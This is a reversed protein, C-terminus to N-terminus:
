TVITFEGPETGLAAVLADFPDPRSDTLLNAM